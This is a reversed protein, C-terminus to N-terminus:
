NEVESIKQQSYRQEFKEIVDLIKDETNHFRYYMFDPDTYIKYNWIVYMIGLSIITYFIWLFFNRDKSFEIHFEISKEIWTNEKWVKSLTSDFENEFM